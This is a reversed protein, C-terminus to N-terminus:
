VISFSFIINAVWPIWALITVSVPGDKVLQSNLLKMFYQPADDMNCTSWVMRNCITQCFTTHLGQFLSQLLQITVHLVSKGFKKKEVTVSPEGVVPSASTPGLDVKFATLM